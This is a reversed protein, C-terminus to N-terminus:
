LPTWEKLPPLCDLFTTIFANPMLAVIPGPPLNATLPTLDLWSLAISQLVHSENNVKPPKSSKISRYAWHTPYPAGVIIWQRLIGIEEQTLSRETKKPPMLDDEDEPHLRTLLESKDPNGPEIAKYGGLDKTAGEYQDLRLDGKRKKKDPGHCDLCNEALISLAMPALSQEEIAASAFCYPFIALCIRAVKGHPGFSSRCSNPM